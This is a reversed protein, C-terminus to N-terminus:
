FEQFKKYILFIRRKKEIISRFIKTNEPNKRTNNSHFM